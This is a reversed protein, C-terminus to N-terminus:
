EAARVAPSRGDRLAHLTARCALAAAVVKPDWQTGAGAALAAEAAAPTLAPRYPRDSLMADFAEAVALVRAALPIAEGALGDPYGTGDYREHHGRVGPRLHALQGLDALLQDGLAAHARMRDAEAPTLPGPKQLIVDPVGIKGLDHTLGAMHLDGCLDAGLGLERGIRSALRAVRESHGRTFRDKADIAATFARLLGAITDSLRRHMAEHRGHTLLLRRAVAMVNIDAPTFRRDGFGLAVAWTDRSRSLRVMAVTAPQPGATRLGRVSSRLLQSDTGPSQDLLDRALTQCWEPPLSLRGVADFPDQGSGSWVYVTDANLGSRLALLFRRTREAATGCDFLAAGLRDLEALARPDTPATAAGATLGEVVLWSQDPGPDIASTM